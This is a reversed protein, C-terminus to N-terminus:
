SAERARARWRERRPRRSCSSRPSTSTSARAGCSSHMELFPAEPFVGVNNVLLDLRGWHSLATAVAQEALAPEVVDGVLAAADGGHERVLAVTEEAQEALRDVVLIRAGDRALALTIARGIGRGG